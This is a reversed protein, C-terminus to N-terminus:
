FGWFQRELDLVRKSVCELESFTKQILPADDTTVGLEKAYAHRDLIGRIRRFETELAASRGIYDQPTM